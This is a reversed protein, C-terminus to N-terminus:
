IDWDTHHTLMIIRVQIFSTSREVIGLSELKMRLVNLNPSLYIMIDDGFFLFIFIMYIDVQEDGKM